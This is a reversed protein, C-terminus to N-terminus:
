VFNYSVPSRPRERFCGFQEFERCVFVIRGRDRFDFGIEVLDLFGNGFELEPAHKRALHIGAVRKQIHM